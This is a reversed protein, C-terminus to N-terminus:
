LDINSAIISGAADVVFLDAYAPHSFGLRDLFDPLNARRSRVVDMKAMSALIMRSSATVTNQMRAATLVVDRAQEESRHVADHQRQAGTLIAIVLAPLAAATIIFYITRLFSGPAFHKM